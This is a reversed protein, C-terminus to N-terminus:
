ASALHRRELDHILQRVGYTWPRVRDKHNVRNVLAGLRPTSVTVLDGVAHTVGRGRVDRNWTPAFMTGLFLMLGDPYQHAPGITQAILDAPDRNNETMSRRGTFTFGDTGDVTISLECRGLDDLTFRDDFLRVFSGIACSADNDKERGLLLLSRDEFDGMNADNGLTAGVARGKSNVALVVEPQPNYWEFDPHLGIAAGLGVASMPQAKTFVGTFPRRGVELSQSWSDPLQNVREADPSGPTIGSLERAVSRWIEDARSVDGRSREKIIRELISSVFTAGCAKIAQLDCPALFSPQTGDQVSDLSNVVADVVSCLSPLESQRLIEPLNDLELLESCTLAIESLDHVRGDRIQVLVPGTKPLWVRGILLAHRLDQPFYM